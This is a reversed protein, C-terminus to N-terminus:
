WECIPVRKLTGTNKHVLHWETPYKKDILWNETNLSPMVSKLLKAEKLHLKRKM